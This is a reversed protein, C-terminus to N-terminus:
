VTAAANAVAVQAKAANAAETAAAKDLLEQAKARLANPDVGTGKSLATRYYAICGTTTKANPFKELVAKLAEANNKGAVIQEKAYSGVGQNPGRKGSSNYKQGDESKADSTVTAPASPDFPPQANENMKSELAQVAARAAGLSKFTSETAVGLQTALENHQTVLETMSMKKLDM